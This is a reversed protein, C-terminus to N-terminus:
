MGQMAGQAGEQEAKMNKRKFLNMDMQGFRYSFVMRFMPVDGLRRTTQIFYQSESYQDYRRTAFVDSVSFTITAADKKLFTKALALDLGYNSKIYGQAATQAGQGFAGGPGGMGGGSSVPLNTRSQYTFSAQAKFKLPLKFNHNTKAFWSWMPDQSSGLVNDVDIKSNYLNVNFNFDWWKNVTNQSTLEVGYSRSSNANVYTSIPRSEGTGTTITDIYNTILDETYKYYGQVLITNNKPLTKTYSAELSTTFEPRLAANGRRWNLQDTSDIFPIVQMFRPRNVRRTANFQIEQQNGLKQSLFISPFLSLPYNNTFKQNTNTLTGEYDSSEGRLGLQYGFNKVSGTYSVYAAFVNDKNRYNTSSSPVLLFGGTNADYFYNGQGNKLRNLQARVGAELKSAGKFPRVYDSQMTLFRNTGSGIIQQQILGKQAGGQQEYINTTYLADGKNEGGFYNFDATLEEGKRKFLYKMGGQAGYGDFTRSNVTNRESYSVFPGGDRASDTRLMNRPNFSGHVRVGSLSVTLRNTPFYDVGVRGFLFGGKNRDNSNQSVLLDPTQLLSRIDTSGTSRDKMQNGFGAVSFNFKNQRVSLNAGGNLAGRKNVGINVTGNYGTKKNKKLVINLIGANGGSADYKASPNTIIEVSEIADAPIQDLTLTTPRGDIYIQPTANRMTVNGDIDVNVSPVNKMVDVATGGASVINADVSFVKKDIDMRLRSTTASVVVGTLQQVDSQLRINGLDKDFGAMAAMPNSNPAGQKPMTFQVTTSYPQYGIASVNMKLPPFIPLNSFEFEGNNSSSLGKLLVDKMKKTASDYRSQLIIVSADRVPKGTSDVLKGTVHGLTPAAQGGPRGGPAAGPAGPARNPTSGPTAPTGQTGPAGSAAPAGGQVPSGAQSAPVGGTAGPAAAPRRSTDTPFSVGGVTDTLATYRTTTDTRPAPVTDRKTSDATQASLALSFLVTSFSLIAKRM